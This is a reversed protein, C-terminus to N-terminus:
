SFRIFNYKNRTIFPTILQALAVNEDDLGEVAEDLILLPPHKLV